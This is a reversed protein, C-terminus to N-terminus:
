LAGLIKIDTSKLIFAENPFSDLEVTLQLPYHMPHIIKVIGAMGHLDERIRPLPLVTFKSGIRVLSDAKREPTM